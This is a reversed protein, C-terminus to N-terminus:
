GVWVHTLEMRAAKRPGVQELALIRNRSAQHWWRATGAWRRWVVRDYPREGRITFETVLSGDPATSSAGRKAREALLSRRQWEALPREALMVEALGFRRATLILGDPSTFEIAVSGPTATVERPTFRRPLRVEVGFLAWERLEGSETAFSALLDPWADAVEARASSPITWHLLRREVADWALAQLPETPGGDVVTFRGSTTLAPMRAGESTGQPAQRVLIERALANLDPVAAMRVWALQGRERLRQHFRFEGQNPDLRYATVEWGAPLDCAFGHWAM